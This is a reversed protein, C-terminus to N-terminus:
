PDGTGKTLLRWGEWESFVGCVVSSQGLGLTGTRRADGVGAPSPVGGLTGRLYCM